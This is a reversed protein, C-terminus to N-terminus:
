MHAYECYKGSVDTHSFTLSTINSKSVKECFSTLHIPDFNQHRIGCVSNHSMEIIEISSNVDFFGVIQSM